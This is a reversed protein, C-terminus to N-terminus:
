HERHFQAPLSKLSDTPLAERDVGTRGGERERERIETNMERERVRERRRAVGGRRKECDRLVTKDVSVFVATHTKQSQTDTHTHTHPPRTHKGEAGVMERTFQM